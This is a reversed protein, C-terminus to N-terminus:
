LIGIKEFKVNESGELGAVGSCQAIMPGDFAPLVVKRPTRLPLYTEM